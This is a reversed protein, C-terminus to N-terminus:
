EARKLRSAVHVGEVPCKEWNEDYKYASMPGYRGSSVWIFNRIATESIWIRDGLRRSTLVNLQNGRTTLDLISKVGRNTLKALEAPTYWLDDDFREM